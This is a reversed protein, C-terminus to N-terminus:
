QATAGDIMAAFLAEGATHDQKDNAAYARRAVVFQSMYEQGTVTEGAANTYEGLDLATLAPCDSWAFWEVGNLPDDESPLSGDAASLVGYATQFAEPDDLLFVVADGASLDATLVTSQAMQVYGSTMEAMAEGEDQAQSDGWDPQEFSVQYAHVQALSKGDGNADQVLGSLAQDLAQRLEEPLAQASVLAVQQDPRVTTLARWTYHGAIAVLVVIVAVIKWNYHWWNAIKQKKTYHIPEDPKLDEPDINLTYRASAM